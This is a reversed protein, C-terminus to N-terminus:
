LDHIQKKKELSFLTHFNSLLYVLSVKVESNWEFYLTSLVWQPWSVCIHTPLRVMMPEFLPKDGSRRWLMIQILVPINDIPVKPVFKLAITLLICVNENFFIVNFIDDAFHQGNRRPRLTNLCHYYITHLKSQSRSVASFIPQNSIHTCDQSWDTHFVRGVCNGDAGQLRVITEYHSM